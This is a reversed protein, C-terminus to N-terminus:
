YPADGDEPTWNDFAGQEPEAETQELLKAGVAAAKPDITRATAELVSGNGQSVGADALEDLAIAKQVEVSVPHYKFGRRIVTKKAMAEYDTDWPGSNGAKSRRRIDEVEGVTMVDFMKNGDLLKTVFYVHTLKEGPTPNPKHVLRENLGFEYEFVDGSYVARAVIHSVKGSRNILEIMGRYGLQFQVEDVGKNRYPILWCHGLASGPELGLQAAQIVSGLFSAPTCRLLAPTKRAETLAIRMLREPTVHAPLAKEIEGKAAELLTKLNKAPDPRKTTAPAQGQPPRTAPTQPAQPTQNENMTKEKV